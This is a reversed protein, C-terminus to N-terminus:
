QDVQTEYGIRRPTIHAFVILEQSFAATPLWMGGIFVATLLVSTKM